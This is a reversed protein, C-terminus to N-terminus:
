LPITQVESNVKPVEINKAEIKEKNNCIFITYNTTSFRVEHCVREDKPEAISVNVDIQKEQKPAPATACASTLLVIGTLYTKM